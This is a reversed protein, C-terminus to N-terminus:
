VDTEGYKRKVILMKACELLTRELFSDTSLVYEAFAKGLKDREIIPAIFDWDVNVPDTISQYRSVVEKGQSPSLLIYADIGEAKAVWYDLDIGTLDNVKDGPWNKINDMDSKEKNM